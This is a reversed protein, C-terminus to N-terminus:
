RRAAISSAKESLADLRQQEWEAEKQLRLVRELEVRLKLEAIKNHAIETPDSTKISSPTRWSLSSAAASLQSRKDSAIRGSLRSADGSARTLANSHGSAISIQSSPRSRVSGQASSRSEVQSSARSVVSRPRAAQAGTGGVLASLSVAFPDREAPGEIFAATEKAIRAAFVQDSSSAM